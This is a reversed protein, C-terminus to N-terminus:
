AGEEHELVTRPMHECAPICKVTVRPDHFFAMPQEMQMAQSISSMFHDMDDHSYQGDPDDIVVVDFMKHWIALNRKTMWAFFADVIRELNDYQVIPPGLHATNELYDLIENRLLSCDM